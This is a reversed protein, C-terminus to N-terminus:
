ASGSAAAGAAPVGRPLGRAILLVPFAIEFVSGPALFLFGATSELEVGGAFETVVGALLAAYGILGLTTLWTPAAGSTRLLGCLILGGVGTFAYITADYSSLADVTTLFYIGLGVITACELLRLGLYAAAQRPAAPGLLDRLIVGIVVVAIGCVIQFLVGALLKGNRVGEDLAETLLTNGIAFSVTAVIFLVGALAAPRRAASSM